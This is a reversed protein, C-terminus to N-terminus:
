SPKGATTPPLDKRRRANYQSHQPRCGTIILGLTNAKKKLNPLPTAWMFTDPGEPQAIPENERQWLASGEPNSIM